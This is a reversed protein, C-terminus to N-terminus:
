LFLTLLIDRMIEMITLFFSGVLHGVAVSVFICVYRAMYYNKKTFLRQWNIKVLMQYTLFVFLLRVILVAMGYLVTAM